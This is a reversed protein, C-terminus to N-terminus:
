QAQKQLDKNILNNLTNSQEKTLNYFPLRKKVKDSEGKEIAVIM